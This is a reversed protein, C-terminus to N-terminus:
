RLERAYNVLQDLVLVGYESNAHTADTAYFDERLFGDNDLAGEPPPILGIAHQACFHSLVEMELKWLNLRLRPESVGCESVVKDRYKTLKSTLFDQDQKPPPTMLHYIRAKSPELIRSIRKNRDCWSAFFDWMARNPVVEYKEPNQKEDDGGGFVWFPQDHQILGFINHATGLLSIVVMDTQNLKSIENRADDIDMDGRVVGAKESRMWHIDFQYEDNCFAPIKSALSLARTHSDGYIFIRQKAM